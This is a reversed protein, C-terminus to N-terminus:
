LRTYEDELEAITNGLSHGLPWEDNIMHTLEKYRVEKPPLRTAAAAEKMQKIRPIMYEIHVKPIATDGSQVYMDIRRLVQEAHAIFESPSSKKM